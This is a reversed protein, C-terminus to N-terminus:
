TENFCVSAWPCGAWWFCLRPWFGPTGAASCLTLVPELFARLTQVPSIIAVLVQAEASSPPRWDGLIRLPDQSGVFSQDIRLAQWWTASPFQFPIADPPSLMSPHISPHISPPPPARPRPAWALSNGKFSLSVTLQSVRKRSLGGLGGEVVWGHGERKRPVEKPREMRPTRCKRNRRSQRLRRPLVPGPPPTKEVGM